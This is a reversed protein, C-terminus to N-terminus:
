RGPPQQQAQAMRQQAAAMMMQHLGQSAAHISPEHVGGPGPAQGPGGPPGQPAGPPGPAQAPAGPQTAGHQAAQEIGPGQALVKVIGSIVEAMKTLQQVAQPDAGAHALGTALKQLDTTIDVAIDHLGGGDGPGVPGQPAAGPPAGQPPQGPPNMAM